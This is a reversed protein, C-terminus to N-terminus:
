LVTSFLPCVTSIGLIGSLLNSLFLRNGKYIRGLSPKERIEGGFDSLELLDVGLENYIKYNYM